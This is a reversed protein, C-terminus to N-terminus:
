KDKKKFQAAYLAKYAGNEIKLLEEHTGEEVLRGNNVVVIKNANQVTSLRHAIVFVTRNKMLNDLAKQVVAESKNDLASTAEDLVVVQANKIFARAIALRQKQGGSLLVGREGVQTDLGNPLSKVFDRLHAKELADWVDDETAAFNGIRVNERVTGSFLFNDQFVMAIRDRLDGLKINRIDVGDVKVAGGSVDYFRSLLSVMTSKGGGSNGVIAISCGVPARLNINQLVPVGKVYEFSVNDFVIDRKIEKLEKAGCADKVATKMDFLEFIRSIALFSRQIDMYNDGVSKMPTYLMLLAALFSVFNGSTITGRVIMASGIGVVLAVGISTLIHMIPSLWNTHQVMKMSVGFMFNMTKRFKGKLYDALNYSAITRNGAYAENYSTAIDSGAVVTKVVLRKLAKRVYAMPLVAFVLIGIAMLSLQWSNYFLVGVLALSSFIKTSFQKVNNVLSASASDADSNFRFMVTGSNNKDFYSADMQLLKGFLAEKVGQTIKQGSWTNMYTAAYKLVGQVITFGVILFPIYLSYNHNKEVMVSDMYPKLFMAITADLSGVPITILIGLLARFWYPRIFPWMRKMNLVFENKGILREIKAM